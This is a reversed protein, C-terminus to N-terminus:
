TRSVTTQCGRSPWNGDLRGIYTERTWLLLSMENQVVDVSGEAPGGIALMPSRAIRRDDEARECLIVRNNGDGSPNRALNAAPELNRSSWSCGELDTPARRSGDQGRSRECSLLNRRGARRDIRFTRTEDTNCCFLTRTRRMRGARSRCCRCVGRRVGWVRM